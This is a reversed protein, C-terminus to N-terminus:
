VNGFSAGEGDPPIRSVIEESMGMREILIQKIGDFEVPEISQNNESDNTILAGRGITIAGGDDLNRRAYLIDNFLSFEKTKEYRYAFYDATCGDFQTVYEVDVRAHSPKWWYHGDGMSWLGHVPSEAHTEQGDILAIAEEGCMSPDAAYEIGDITILVSGHNPKMPDNCELMQGAVRRVDFGSQHLVGFFAEATVWCSGGVGHQLLTEVFDNPNVSPFPGRGGEAFYIRKQVNDYGVLRTWGKYMANLAALDPDPFDSFGFRELVKEALDRRLSTGFNGKKSLETETSM